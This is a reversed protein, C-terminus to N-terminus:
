IKLPTTARKMCITESVANINRFMKVHWFGSIGSFSFYAFISYLKESKKRYDILYCITKLIHITWQLIERRREQWKHPNMSHFIQKGSSFKDTHPNWNHTRICFLPNLPFFFQKRAIQQQPTIPTTCLAKHSLANVSSLQEHHNISSWQVKIM